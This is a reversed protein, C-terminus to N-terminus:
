RLRLQQDFCALRILFLTPFPPLSEPTLNDAATQRHSTAIEGSSPRSTFGRPHISACVPETRDTANLLSPSSSAAGPVAGRAFGPSTFSHFTLVPLSCAM